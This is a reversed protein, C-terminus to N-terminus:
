QRVNLAVKPHEPGLDLNPWNTVTLRLPNVGMRSNAKHRQDQIPYHADAEYVTLRSIKWALNLRVIVHAARSLEVSSRM